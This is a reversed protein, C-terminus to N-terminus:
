KHTLQNRRRPPMWEPILMYNNFVKREVAKFMIQAQKKEDFNFNVTGTLHGRKNHKKFYLRYRIRMLGLEQETEDKISRVFDEFENQADKHLENKM